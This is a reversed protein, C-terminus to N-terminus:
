EDDRNGERQDANMVFLNQERGGTYDHNTRGNIRSRVRAELDDVHMNSTILTLREKGHRQYFLDILQADAWSAAPGMTKGRHATGVDDLFLVDVRQLARMREDADVFEADDEAKHRNYGDRLYRFLDPESAYLATHGQAALAKVVAALLHSKGVGTPGYLYLWGFPAQVYRRCTDLAAAMTTYATDNAARGLDYTDLTAAALEAGMDQDLMALVHTSRERRKKDSTLERCECWKLKGFDPHGFTVPYLYFGSGDCLGLPCTNSLVRVSTDASFVTHGLLDPPEPKQSGPTANTTNPNM